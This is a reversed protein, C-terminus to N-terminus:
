DKDPVKAVFGSRKGFIVHLINLLESYADINKTMDFLIDSIKLSTGPRIIQDIRVTDGHAMPRTHRNLLRFYTYPEISRASVSSGPNGFFESLFKHHLPGLNGSKLQLEIWPYFSDAQSTKFVRIFNKVIENRFGFERMKSNDARWQQFLSEIGGDYLSESDSTYYDTEYLSDRFSNDKDPSNKLGSSNLTVFGSQLQFLKVKM